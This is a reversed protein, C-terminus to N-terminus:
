IFDLRGIKMAELVFNIGKVKNKCENEGKAAMHKIFEELEDFIRKIMERYRSSSDLSPIESYVKRLFTKLQTIDEKGATLVIEDTLSELINLFEAEGATSAIEYVVKDTLGDFIKSFRSYKESNQLRDIFERMEIIKKLKTEYSCMENTDLEHKGDFYLLKIHFPANGDRDKVYIKSTLKALTKVLIGAYLDKQCDKYIEPKLLYILRYALLVSTLFVLPYGRDIIRIRDEKPHYEGLIRGYYMDLLNPFDSGIVEVKCTPPPPPLSVQINLMELLEEWDKSLDRHKVYKM